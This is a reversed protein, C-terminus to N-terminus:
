QYKEGTIQEFEDTTIWNKIVANRVRIINWRGTDYFEKVIEFKSSMAIMEKLNEPM